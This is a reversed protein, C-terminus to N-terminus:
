LENANTSYPESNWSDIDTKCKRVIEIKSNLLKSVKQEVYCIVMFTGKEM